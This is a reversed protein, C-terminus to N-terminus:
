QIRTSKNQDDWSRSEDKKEIEQMYVKFKKRARAGRWRAVLDEGVRFIRGGRLYVFGILMGGLHATASIGPRTSSLVFYLELAGMIMVFYKAKIPFLFYIYILRESFIVGYALLLGFIAGSAGVTNTMAVPDFLYSCVGAGVGTLLYYRVLSKRGWYRELECGFMWLALMNFLLHMPDAHLFLYTVFQWLFFQKSILVPVLGFTEDFPAGGVKQVLFRLIFVAVNLIIIWKVALTLPGGFSLSTRHTRYGSM